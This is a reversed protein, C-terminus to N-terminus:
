PLGPNFLEDFAKVAEKYGTYGNITGFQPFAHNNGGQIAFLKNRLAALLKVNADPVLAFLKAFERIVEAHGNQRAMYLGEPCDECLVSLLKARNAEPVLALLRGFERVAEVHGKQLAKNLGTTGENSKAELLCSIGEHDQDRLLVMWQESNALAVIGPVLNHDLLHYLTSKSFRDPWECLNSPLSLDSCDKVMVSTEAQHGEGFLAVYYGEAGVGLFDRLRLTSLASPNSVKQKAVVNTANPDFFHVKYSAEEKRHVQLAMVHNTTLILFQKKEGVGMVNAWKELSKGFQDNEVIYSGNANKIFQDFYLDAICPSIRSVDVESGFLVHPYAKPGQTANKWFHVMMGSLHRCLVIDHYKGGGNKAATGNLNKLSSIYKSSFYPKGISAVSKFDNVSRFRVFSELFKENIDVPCAKLMRVLYKTRLVEPLSDLLKQYVKIEKANDKLLAVYIGLLGNNLKKTLVRQLNVDSVGGWNHLRALQKITPLSGEGWQSPENKCFVSPKVSVYKTRKSERDNLGLCGRVSVLFHRVRSLKTSPTNIQASPFQSRTNRIGEITYNSNRSPLAKFDLTHDIINTYIPRIPPMSNLM